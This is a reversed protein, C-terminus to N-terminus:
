HPSANSEVTSGVSRIRNWHNFIVRRFLIRIPTNHSIFIISSCFGNGLYTTYSLWTAVNVVSVGLFRFQVGVTDLILVVALPSSLVLICMSIKKAAESLKRSRNITSGRVQHERQKLARIAMYYLIIASGLALYMIITSCARQIIHMTYTLQLIFITSLLIALSASMVVSIHGRKKTIILSYRELYKMHLYRDLAILFTMFISFLTGFVLILQTTLKLWCLKQYREISLLTFLVLSTVGTAFDSCSMAIVFLFSTTKTQQTRFIAWILLANGAINLISIFVNYIQILAVYVQPIGSLSKIYTFCVM